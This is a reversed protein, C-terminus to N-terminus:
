VDVRSDDAADANTNENDNIEDVSDVNYYKVSTKLTGDGNNVVDVVV